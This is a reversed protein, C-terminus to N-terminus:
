VVVFVNLYLINVHLSMNTQCMTQFTWCRWRLDKPKLSRFFLLPALFRSAAGTICSLVYIQALREISMSDSVAINGEM